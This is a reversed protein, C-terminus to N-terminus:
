AARQGRTLVAWLGRMAARLGGAIVPQAADDQVVARPLHRLRAETERRQATLDIMAHCM